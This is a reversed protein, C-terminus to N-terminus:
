VQDSFILLRRVKVHCLERQLFGNIASCTPFALPSKNTAYAIFIERMLKLMFVSYYTSSDSRTQYVHASMLSRHPLARETSIQKHIQLHSIWSPIYYNWIMQLKRVGTDANFYLLLSFLCVQVLCCSSSQFKLLPSSGRCTDTQQVTQSCDFILYFLKLNM